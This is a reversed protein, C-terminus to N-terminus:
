AGASEAPTIVTADFPEAPAPWALADFGAIAAASAPTAAVAAQRTSAFVIVTSLVLACLPVARFLLKQM